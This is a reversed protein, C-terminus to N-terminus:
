QDFNRNIIKHHICFVESDAIHCSRDCFKFIDSCNRVMVGDDYYRVSTRCVYFSLDNWVVAGIEFPWCITSCLEININITPSTCIADVRCFFFRLVGYVSSCVCPVLLNAWQSCADDCADPKGGLQELKRLRTSIFMRICGLLKNGSLLAESTLLSSLFRNGYCMVNLWVCSELRTIMTIRFLMLENVALKNVNNVTSQKEVREVNHELLNKWKMSWVVPVDSLRIQHTFTAPKNKM